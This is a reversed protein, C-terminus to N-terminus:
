GATPVGAAPTAGPKRSGILAYLPTGAVRPRGIGLEAALGDSREGPEPVREIHTAARPLRALEAHAALAGDVGGVVFPRRAVGATVM